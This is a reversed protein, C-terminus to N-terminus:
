LMLLLCHDAVCFTQIGRDDFIYCRHRKAERWFQLLDQFEKELTVSRVCMDWDICLWRKGVLCM